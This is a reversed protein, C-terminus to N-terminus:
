GRVLRRRSAIGLLAAGGLLAAASPEPLMRPTNVLSASETDTDADCGCHGGDKGGRGGYKGGHGARKGDHDDDFDGDEDDFDDHEGDCSASAISILHVGVRMTGSTFADLVDSYTDGGSLTLVISLSEGPNVGNRPKPNLAAFRMDSSFGVNQGGPLRRPRGGEDFSVGASALVSTDGFEFAVDFYVNAVSSAVPGVNRLTLTVTGSGSDTVDLSLQTGGVACASQTGAICGFGFSSGAAPGALGVVALVLLFLRKM